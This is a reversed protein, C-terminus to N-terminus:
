ASQAELKTIRVEHDKLKTNLDANTPVIIEYIDHVDNKLTEIDGSMKDLRANVPQLQSAVESRVESRVEDRVIERVEERILQRIAQIDDQTLNM